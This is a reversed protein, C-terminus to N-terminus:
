RTSVAKIVKPNTWYSNYTAADVPDISGTKYYSIADIYHMGNVRVAEHYGTESIRIHTKGDHEWITIYEGPDWGSLPPQTEFRVIEIADDDFGAKRLAEAVDDACQSCLGKGQTIDPHYKKKSLIKELDARVCDLLDTNHVVVRLETVTSTHLADVTFNYVMAPGSSRVATQVRLRRGDASLLVDGAELDGADMWYGSPEWGEVWFPHELTATITVVVTHEQTSGLAEGDANLLTVTLTVLEADEHSTTWTIPYWDAAGTEPDVAWVLDGEALTEIPVLGDISEVLTGAVFSNPVCPLDDFVHITDADDITTAANNADRAADITDTVKYIAQVDDAVDVDDLYKAAYNAASDVNRAAAKIYNRAPLM